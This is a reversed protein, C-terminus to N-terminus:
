NKSDDESHTFSLYLFYGLAAGIIGAPIDLPDPNNHVNEYFDISLLDPVKTEGLAVCITTAIFGIKAANKRSINPLSSILTTAVVAPMLAVLDGTHNLFENRIGFKNTVINSACSVLVAGVGLSLSIRWPEPKTSFSKIGPLRLGIWEDIKQTKLQQMLLSM